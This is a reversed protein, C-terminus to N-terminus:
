DEIKEWKKSVIDRFYRHINNTEVLIVSTIVGNMSTNIIEMCNEIIDDNVTINVPATFICNRFGLKNIYKFYDDISKLM